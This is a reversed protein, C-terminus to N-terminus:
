WRERITKHFKTKMHKLTKPENPALLDDYVQNLQRTLESADRHHLYDRLALSFLKSRSVGMEKATRDAKAMLADDVSIATKM